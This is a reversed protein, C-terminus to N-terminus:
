EGASRVEDVDFVARFVYGREEVKERGGELRDVLGAVVAIEGGHAEILEAARLVSGATTIVDDVIAVRGGEPYVGEVWRQTGHQKADKRVVFGPLFRGARHAAAATAVVIPDAGLTLGGIGAVHFPEILQLFAEGVLDIAEPHFTVQKADLYYKSVRGSALVFHGERYAHERILRLLRERSSM